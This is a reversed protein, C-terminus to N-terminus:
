GSTTSPTARLTGLLFLGIGAMLAVDAINFVGTHLPGIRLVAFDVVLGGRLLRDALNGFGGGIVLSLGVLQARSLSPSRLLYVLAGALIPVVGVTLLLVRTLPPLGAGLSLFAGPNEAYELHLVGGLLDIPPRGALSERALRKTVQDASACAVLVLLILFLRARRTV